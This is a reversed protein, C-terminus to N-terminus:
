NRAHKQAYYVFAPPFNLFVPVTRMRAFRARIKKRDALFYQFQIFMGGPRLTERVADIIALAQNAALNGLPIGSIIFDPKDSAKRCLQALVTEASDAVVEIRGSDIGAAALNSRNVQALSRNIECALIRAKPCRAALRLTLAGSGAGLEIIRGRYDEPVPAIMRNVLFRQSPMIAGMQQQKLLAAWLFHLHTKLTNSM